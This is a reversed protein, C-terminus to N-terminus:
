RSTRRARVVHNNTVIYGNASVIVGSGLGTEPPQQLQPIQNGFFQRFIPNDMGPFQGEGNMAVNRARIQVTIKVVSPAVKKVVSSFSTEMPIRTVSSPDRKLLLPASGTQSAGVAAYLGAAALLGAGAFALKRVHSSTHSPKMPLVWPVGEGERRGKQLIVFIYPLPPHM